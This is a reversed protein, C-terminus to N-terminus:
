CKNKEGRVKEQILLLQDEIEKILTFLADHRREMSSRIKEMETYLYISSDNKGLLDLKNM